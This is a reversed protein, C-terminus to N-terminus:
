RPVSGSKPYAREQSMGEKPVLGSEPCAKDIPAFLYIVPLVLGRADPKQFPLWGRSMPSWKKHFFTGVPLFPSSAVM